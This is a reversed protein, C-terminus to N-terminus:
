FANSSGRQSSISILVICVRALYHNSANILMLGRLLLLLHHIALLHCFCPNANKFNSKILCLCFTLDVEGRKNGHM